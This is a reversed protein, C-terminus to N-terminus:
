APVAALKAQGIAAAAALEDATPAGPVLSLNLAASFGRAVAEATEAFPASRGLLGSLTAARERMHAALAAREDEDPSWLYRTVRAIDGFLPLSGHQLVRGAPRTQASGILKQTGVTIEYASPAEFCAASAN